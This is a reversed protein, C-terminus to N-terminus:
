SGHPASEGAGIMSLFERRTTPDPDDGAWEILTRVAAEAEARRPRRRADSGTRSPSSTSTRDGFAAADM